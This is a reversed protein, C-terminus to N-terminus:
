AEPDDLGQEARRARVRDMAVSFQKPDSSGIQEALQKAYRSIFPRGAALLLAAIAGPLDRSKREEAKEDLYAAFEREITGRVKAGDTGLKKLSKDIEKPLMSPPLPEPPGVVAAKARRFLKRPGGVAVFGVGAALGAAKVPNAKVKAPVDVAARASAELNMLERDLSARSALIAERAAVVEPRAPTSSEGV